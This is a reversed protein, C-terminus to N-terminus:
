SGCFTRASSIPNYDEDDMTKLHDMKAVKLMVSLVIEECLYFTQQHMFSICWFRPKNATITCMLTFTQPNLVCIPQNTKKFQSPSM